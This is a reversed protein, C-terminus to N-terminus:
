YSYLRPADTPAVELMVTATPVSAPEDAGSCGISIASSVFGSAVLLIALIYRTTLNIQPKDVDSRVLVASISM